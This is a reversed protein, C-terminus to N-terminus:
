DEARRAVIEFIRRRASYYLHFATIKAIIKRFGNFGNTVFLCVSPSLRSANPTRRIGASHSLEARRSAFAGSYLASWVSRATRNRSPRVTSLRARGDRKVFDSGTKAVM